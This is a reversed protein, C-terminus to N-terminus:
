SKGIVLDYFAGKKNFLEDYSGLEVIKGGKMVVIKDFNKTIDLRHVVAILSTNGKWRTDLQGQIRAQSKNDLGSTAEDMILIKPYKLFARAIAIKQRQGGSLRDGKTGVQFKMGLEVITELMEEEVLLQIISEHIKELDEAKGSKLKGFLINNMITQSYIYDTSKFFSIAGPNDKSILWRFMARRELIINELLGPFGIMKHKGPIFRLGLEFLKKRDQESLSHLDQEKRRNVIGSYEELEEPHIPSQEFFMEKPTLNGLIGVTQRSIEDGLNLLSNTLNAEDLFNLFYDNNILNEENFLKINPTGFILNEAINSHYLYTDKKFFEVYGAIEEGLDSQFNERVRLIQSVLNQHRDYVLHTNLGFQLIDAFVGTQQLVEIIEDLSPMINGKDTGNSEILSARGYLINEEVTGDFVYPAQAVYGINRVIDSKTLESVEKGGILLHGGTYKYLQGICQALTSKGSGSFGVLALHEGPRLSLDIDDLLRIKDETEFYLNKVEISGDLEYPPRGIPKIEYEPEIDFYEMTKKYGVSADQYLQYFDILEGWPDYLKEQASIFAVLSGLELHGKITLYGGALFIFFPGLNNFFNNTLKISQKYISWVFRIRLLRNAMKNFKKNEIQYSGNGHIEHIGAVSEAVRNSIIRTEDVRKKNAINARKQLMPVLFIIVPYVSISLLALWKNLWFLYGAFALLTLISTVPTAIAIGVFEGAPALETVLSSVVMGPGTKKFFNVPLKLIHHYLEKRMKTLVRQSILTHIVSAVYKLGSSLLVAALFLGCYLILLDIKKLNIAEDVIRKQMELPFVRALVTVAIIFILLVQLRINGPLIWSFISRKTILTSSKNM